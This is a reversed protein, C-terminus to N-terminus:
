IGTPHSSLNMCISSAFAIAGLHVSKIRIYVCLTSPRMLKFFENVSFVERVSVIVAVFLSNLCIQFLIIYRFSARKNREDHLITYQLPM